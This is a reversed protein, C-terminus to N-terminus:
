WTVEYENEQGASNAERAEGMRMARPSIAVRVAWILEVETGPRSALSMMM